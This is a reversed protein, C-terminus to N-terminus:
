AVKRAALVGFLGSVFQKVAEHGVAPAVVILGFQESRLTEFRAGIEDPLSIVHEVRWPKEGSRLRSLYAKDIGMFLALADQKHKWVSEDIAQNM